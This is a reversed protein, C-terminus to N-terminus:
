TEERFFFDLEPEPDTLYNAGVLRNKDRLYILFKIEDNFNLV